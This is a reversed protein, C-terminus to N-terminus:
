AARLPYSGPVTAQFVLPRGNAFTGARGCLDGCFRCSCRHVSVTAPDYQFAKVVDDAAHVYLTNNYFAMAGWLGSRDANPPDVSNVPFSQIPQGVHGMNDLASSTSCAARPWSSPRRPLRRAPHRPCYWPRLRASTWTASRWARSIPRPSTTPWPRDHRRRPSGSCRTATTTARGTSGRATRSSSRSETASPRAPRSWRSPSPRPSIRSTRGPHQLLGDPRTSTPRTLQVVTGPAHISSTFKADGNVTFNGQSTFGNPQTSRPRGAAASPGAPSTTRPGAPTPAAASGSTPPTAASRARCTSTPTSTPTARKTTTDSITENLTQKSGDYSLTM